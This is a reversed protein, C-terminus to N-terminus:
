RGLIIYIVVYPIMVLTAWIRLDYRAQYNGDGSPAGRFIFSRNLRWVWIAAILYLGIACSMAVSMPLSGLWSDIPEHFKKLPWFVYLLISELWEIM